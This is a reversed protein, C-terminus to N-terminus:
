RMAEVSRLDAPHVQDIRGDDWRVRVYAKCVRSVRGVPGDASGTIGVYRVRQGTRLPAADPHPPITESRSM